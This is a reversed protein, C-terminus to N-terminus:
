KEHNKKEGKHYQKLVNILTYLMSVPEIELENAYATVLRKLEQQDERKAAKLIENIKQKDKEYENM